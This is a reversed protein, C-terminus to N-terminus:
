TTREEEERRSAVDYVVDIFSEKEQLDALLKLASIMFDCAGRDSRTSQLGWHGEIQQKSSDSNTKPRRPRKACHRRKSQLRACKHLELSKLSGM